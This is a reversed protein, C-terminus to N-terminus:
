DSGRIADAMCKMVFDVCPIAVSNGLAKYRASDSAGPIDTWGDPFGQLRECELPTLRRILLIPLDKDGMLECTHLILDTADKSQRASQTGAIEDTTFADVRQRRFVAHRDFGTLTYAVNEQYGIGNGGNEPERDITANGTEPELPIVIPQGTKHQVVRIERTRWNICDFTLRIIDCSRLGSQVALVMMAYDRKGVASTIDPQSLLRELEDDSFGERFNKRPCVFEPLTKCFNDATIEAEYLFRLFTRIGFLASRMGGTYRGLMRTVCTAIDMMAVTEISVIGHDELELLFVRAVSTVTSVSSEAWNSQTTVHASFKDLIAKHQPIVERRGWNPIRELTIKGTLRFEQLMAAAKRLNQYTTRGVEGQEYQLRREDTLQSILKDSYSETGSDYHKKLIVALGEETYHRVTNESLGLQEMRKNVMWVLVYINESEAFQKATPADHQIIQKPRNWVPDWPQLDPLDISNMAACQKLLECSRRVLGWKWQSIDGQDLLVRQELLFNDLMEATAYLIGKTHFHRLISGFGTHTYNYISGDSMGANTLLELARQATADLEILEM